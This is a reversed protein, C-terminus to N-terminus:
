HQILIAPPYTLVACISLEARGLEQTSLELAKAEPSLEKLGAKKQAYILM